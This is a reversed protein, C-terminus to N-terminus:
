GCIVGIERIIKRDSNANFSLHEALDSILFDTYDASDASLSKM